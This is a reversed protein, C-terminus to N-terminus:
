QEHRLDAINSTYVYAILETKDIIRHLAEKIDKWPIKLSKSIFQQGLSYSHADPPETKM